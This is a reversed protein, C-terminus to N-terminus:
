KLLKILLVVCMFIDRWNWDAWLSVSKGTQTTVTYAELAHAVHADYPEGGGCTGYASVYQIGNSVCANTSFNNAYTYVGTLSNLYYELVLAKDASCNCYVLNNGVQVTKNLYCELEVVSPLTAPLCPYAFYSLKMIVDVQVVKGSTLAVLACLCAMIWAARM